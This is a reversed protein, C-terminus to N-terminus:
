ITTDIPNPLNIHKKGKLLTSNIACNNIWKSLGVITMNNIKSYSKEKRKFVNTSLDEKKSSGLVKCSSCSNKYANCGEDYHCGGTFAWMDHLSWVIPANIKTMYEIKIMGECIWHLHVLDPNIKNIEDIINSFGFWSSSFPTKSRNKYFRIPISDLTRRLKNLMKQVKTDSTTIVSFDDGSKSQVLMQSDIDQALLSKHLRYSARAAGGEIDSKNVILIKM